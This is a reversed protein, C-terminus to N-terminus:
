HFETFNRKLAGIGSFFACFVLAHVPKISSMCLSLSPFAVTAYSSQNLFFFIQLKDRLFGDFAFNLLEM